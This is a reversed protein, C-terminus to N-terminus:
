ESDYYKSNILIESIDDLLEYVNIMAFPSDEEFLNNFPDEDLSDPPYYKYGKNLNRVLSDLSSLATHMDMSNQFIKLDSQDNSYEDGTYFEYTVKM